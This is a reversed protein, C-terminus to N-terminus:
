PNSLFKEFCNWIAFRAIQDSKRGDPELLFKEDFYVVVITEPNLEVKIRVTQSKRSTKRSHDLSSKSLIVSFLKLGDATFTHAVIHIAQCLSTGTKDIAATM